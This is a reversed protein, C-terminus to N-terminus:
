MWQCLSCLYQDTTKRHHEKDPKPIVTIISGEYLLNPVGKQFMKHCIPTLEVTVNSLNILSAM